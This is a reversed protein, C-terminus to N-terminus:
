LKEKLRHSDTLLSKLKSNLALHNGSYNGKAREELELSWFLTYDITTM